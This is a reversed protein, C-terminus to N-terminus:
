PPGRETPDEVDPAVGLDAQAHRRMEPTIPALPEQLSAENARGLLSPRPVQSGKQPLGHQRRHKKLRKRLRNLETGQRDLVKLHFTVWALARDLKGATPVILGDITQGAFNDRPPKKPQRPRTPKPRKTTQTASPASPAHDGGGSPSGWSSSQQPVTAPVQPDDRRADETEADEQPRDAQSSQEPQPSPDVAIVLQGVVDAPIEVLTGCASCVYHKGARVVVQPGRETSRPDSPQPHAPSSSM